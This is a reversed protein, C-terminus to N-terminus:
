KFARVGENLYKILDIIRQKQSEAMPLTTAQELNAWQYATSENDLQLEGGKIKGSYVIAFEQRVEGDSYAIINKPNTYTGVIDTIEVDYGLEERVERIACGKLDEGFDQTGGPMAWKGSDRRRVLLIENQENVIAVSAAPKISNPIPAEQDDTYDLRM